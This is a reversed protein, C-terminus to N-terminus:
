QCSRPRIAQDPARGCKGFGALQRALVRVPRVANLVQLARLAAAAQALRELMRGIGAAHPIPNLTRVRSALRDLAIADGERLAIIYLEVILFINTPTAALEVAYRSAAATRDGVPYLLRPLPVRRWITSTSSLPTDCGRLRAVPPASNIDTPGISRSTVPTSLWRRAFCRERRVGAGNTVTTIIARHLSPPLTM